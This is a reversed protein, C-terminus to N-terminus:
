THLGFRDIWYTCGTFSSDGRYKGKKHSKYGLYKKLIRMLDPVLEMIETEDPAFVSQVEGEGFDITISCNYAFDIARPSGGYTNSWSVIDTAV